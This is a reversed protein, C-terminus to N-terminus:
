ESKAHHFLINNLSKIFYILDTKIPNKKYKELYKRESEWVEEISNPLDVYYPPILGPKYKIRAKKLDEPYVGFFTESLPRVGILKVEGKLLNILGPLEDIYYKRFVGGWSTIRFDDAIKGRKNLKFKEYVYSHVYESYPYMTRFKYAYFTNRDKGVRKQRFVPGYSPTRDQLPDKVRKAILYFFNDIEKLDILEFGCFYLRGLCEAM